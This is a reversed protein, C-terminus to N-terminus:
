DELLGISWLCSGCLNCTGLIAVAVFSRNYRSECATQSYAAVFIALASLLWGACALSFAIPALPGEWTIVPRRHTRDSRLHLAALVLFTTAVAILIRSAIAARDSERKPRVQPPGYYPTKWPLYAKAWAPLAARVALLLLTLCSTAVVPFGVIWLPRDASYWPKLWLLVPPSSPFRDRAANVAPLWVAFGGTWIVFILVLRAASM